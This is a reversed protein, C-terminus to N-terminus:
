VSLGELEPRPAGTHHDVSISYFQIRDASEKHNRDLIFMFFPPFRLM